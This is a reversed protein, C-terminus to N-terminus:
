SRFYYTDLNEGIRKEAKFFAGSKINNFKWCFWSKSHVKSLILLFTPMSQGCKRENLLKGEKLIEIKDQHTQLDLTKLIEFYWSYKFLQLFYCKMEGLLFQIEPFIVNIYRHSFLFYKKENPKMLIVDCINSRFFIKCSLHSTVNERKKNFFRWKKFMKLTM